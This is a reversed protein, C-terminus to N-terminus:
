SVILPVRQIVNIGYGGVNWVKESDIPQRNGVEDSARVCLEYEGPAQADWEYSWPRWAYRGLPDGLEADAWSYGGDSSFEVSEVAGFGSWARGEVTVRGARLHRTRTLFDPIGPPVMVAHPYKRTLPWGPDDESKRYRYAIAQEVGEFPKSIATISKLWKVSTMGYWEPVLLRLPFGHQPPLPQGNMEYALIVEERLAEELPLSREYNHEVDQDIGRDHGSFLIEVADDLLGVEELIPRLPTGTWQACGMAEEHWPVSIPRPSLHSRGIGACEMMVPMTVAPRAKVDDLSLKLPNRVRGAIPLEYTRPDIFPIDFHILLYHMGIPTIPYRLGELHMGHNRLALRVEERSFEQSSAIKAMEDEDEM